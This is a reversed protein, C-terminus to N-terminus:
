GGILVDQQADADIKAIHDDLTAIEIAVTHIQRCLTAASRDTDPSEMTGAGAGDLPLRDVHLLDAALEAGTMNQLAAHSPHAIADAYGCLKHFCSGAIM